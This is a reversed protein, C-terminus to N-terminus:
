GGLRYHPDIGANDSVVTVKFATPKNKALIQASTNPSVNTITDASSGLVVIDDNRATFFNARVNAAKAVWQVYPVYLLSSPIRCVYAGAMNSNLGSNVQSTVVKFFCGTLVRKYWVDGTGAPNDAGKLCNWITITDVYNPNM